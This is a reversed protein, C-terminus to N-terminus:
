AWRSDRTPTQTLRIPLSRSFTSYLVFDIGNTIAAYSGAIEPHRAYSLAQEIEDIGIKENPSKIELVWRGAGNVALVYDARGRLPPDNRKKRGLFVYDYKLTHERLIDANTGKKYGLFNLLPVAIEERVDTENYGVFQFDGLEKVLTACETAQGHSKSSPDM